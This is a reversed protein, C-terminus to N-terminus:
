IQILVVNYCFRLHLGGRVLVKQTLFLLLPFSAFFAIQSECYGQPIRPLYSVGHALILGWRFFMHKNTSLSVEMPLILKMERLNKKIQFSSSVSLSCVAKNGM